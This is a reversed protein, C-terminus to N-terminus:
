LIKFHIVQDNEERHEVINNATTQRGSISCSRLRPKIM